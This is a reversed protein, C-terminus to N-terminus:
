ETYYIAKISGWNTQKVPIPDPDCDCGCGYCGADPNVYMWGGTAYLINPPNSCDVVEIEGSAADEAPVVHIRSCAQSLCSGFFQVELIMFPSALCTGYDITIGGFIPNGGVITFPSSEGLYTLYVDSDLYIMFKSGRVGPSYVHHAYVKVIGPINDYLYCCWDRYYSSSLHVSGSQAMPQGVILTLLIILLLIRKMM